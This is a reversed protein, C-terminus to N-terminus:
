QLDVILMLAERQGFQVEWNYNLLFIDFQATVGSAAHNLDHRELTHKKM